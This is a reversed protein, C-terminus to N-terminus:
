DVDDEFTGVPIPTPRGLLRPTGLYVPMVKGVSTVGRAVNRYEAIKKEWCADCYHRKGSPMRKDQDLIDAGCGACHRAWCVPCLQQMLVPGAPIKQMEPGNAGDVTMCLLGRDAELKEGCGACKTTPQIMMDGRDETQKNINVKVM